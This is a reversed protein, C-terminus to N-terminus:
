ITKIKIDKREKEKIWVKGIHCDELIADVVDLAEQPMDIIM